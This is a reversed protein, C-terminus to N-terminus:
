IIRTRIQLAYFIREGVLESSERNTLITTSHACVLNSPGLPWLSANCEQARALPALATRKLLGARCAVSGRAFGSTIDARQWPRTTSKVNSRLSFTAMARHTQVAARPRCHPTHDIGYSCLNLTQHQKWRHRHVTSVPVRNYLRLMSNTTTNLWM